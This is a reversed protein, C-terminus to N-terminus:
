ISSWAYFEVDSVTPLNGTWLQLAQGNTERAAIVAPYEMIGYAQSKVAGERSDVNILESKIRRDELLKNFNEVSREHESNPRYLIYIM